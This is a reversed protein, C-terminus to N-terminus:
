EEVEKDGWAEEFVKAADKWYEDNAKECEESCFLELNGDDPFFRGCWWCRTHLKGNKIKMMVIGTDSGGPYISLLDKEKCSM